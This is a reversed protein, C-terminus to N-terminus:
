RLLLAVTGLKAARSAWAAWRAGPRAYRIADLVAPALVLTGIAREDLRAGYAMGRTDREAPGARVLAVVGYGASTLLHFALLGKQVPARERRLDPRASLILETAAYQSWFGAASITYERRRSLDTRHAIAFFPIAGLEVRKVYPDAGFAVDFVLHGAEHAGFAIAAGGM